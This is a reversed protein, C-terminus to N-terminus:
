TVSMMQRGDSNVLRHPTPTTWLRRISRRGVPAGGWAPASSLLKDTDEKSLRAVLVYRVDIFSNDNYSYVISASAPETFGAYERFVSWRYAPILVWYVLGAMLVLILLLSAVLYFQWRKKWKPM